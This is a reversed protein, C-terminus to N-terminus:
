DVYMGGDVAGAVSMRLSVRRAILVVTSINQRGMAFARSSALLRPLWYWKESVIDLFQRIFVKLKEM